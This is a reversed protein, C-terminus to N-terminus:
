ASVTIDSSTGTLLVISGNGNAQWSAAQNTATPLLTRFPERSHLQTCLTPTPIPSPPSPSLFSSVVKCIFDPTTPTTWSSIYVGPSMTCGPYTRITIAENLPCLHSASAWKVAPKRIEHQGRWFIWSKGGKVLNLGLQTQLSTIGRLHTCTCWLFYM